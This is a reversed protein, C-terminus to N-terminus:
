GRIHLALQNSFVKISPCISPLLLPRFLILHNSLMVSEIVDIQAFEPLYQFVPVQLAVTWPTAFLQVCSLSQRVVAAVILSNALGAFSLILVCFDRANRYVLLSLSSVSILYVIGNVKAVFLIFDSCIFRDLSTFCM